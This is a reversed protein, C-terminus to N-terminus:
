ERPAIDHICDSRDIRSAFSLAQLTSSARTSNAARMRVKQAEAGNSIQQNSPPTWYRKMWRTWKSMKHNTEKSKRRPSDGSDPTEIWECYNHTRFIIEGNRMPVKGMRTWQVASPCVPDCRIIKRQNALVKNWKFDREILRLARTISIALSFIILLLHAGVFM